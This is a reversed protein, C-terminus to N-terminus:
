PPAPAACRVARVGRQAEYRRRAEKVSGRLARVCRQAYRAMKRKGNCKDRRERRRKVNENINERACRKRM